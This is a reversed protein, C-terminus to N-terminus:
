FLLQVTMSSGSADGSASGTAKVGVYQRVDSPLRFRATAAAAGVGGAGTQILVDAALTAPSSLDSNVSHVVSYKMTKADPLPTAGLAPASILLEANAIFDGNTSTVLNIADTTTSAAGNPLAKTVKLQADGVLPKSM